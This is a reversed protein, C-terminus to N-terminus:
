PISARRARKSKHLSSRESEEQLIKIQALDRFIQDAEKLKICLDLVQEYNIKTKDSIGRYHSLEEIIKWLDEISLKELEGRFYSSNKSKLVRNNKALM